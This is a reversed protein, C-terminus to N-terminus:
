PYFLHALECACTNSAAASGINCLEWREDPDTTFCWAAPDDEPTPNRCYNHDGVGKAAADDSGTWFGLVFDSKM